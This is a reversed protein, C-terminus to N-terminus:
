DIEQVTYAWYKAHSRLWQEADDYKDREWYRQPMYRTIKGEASHLALWLFKDWPEAHISVDGSEIEIYM